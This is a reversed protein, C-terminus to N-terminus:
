DARETPGNAGNRWHFGGGPWSRWLVVSLLLVGGGLAMLVAGILQYDVFYPFDYRFRLIAGVTILFIGAAFGVSSDDLM